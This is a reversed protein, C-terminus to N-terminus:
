LSAEIDSGNEVGGGGGGIPPFLKPPEPEPETTGQSLPTRKPASSRSENSKTTVHPIPQSIQLM